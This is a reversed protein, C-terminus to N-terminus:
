GIKQIVFGIDYRKNKKTFTYGSIPNVKIAEIKIILNHRKKLM